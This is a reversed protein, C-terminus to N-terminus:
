RNSDSLGASGRIPLEVIFRAGQGAESEAWIRGGHREVVISWCLWLGLGTGEGVEKTTFFPEFLREGVPESIGPGNDEVELRVWGLRSSTRLTLRPRYEGEGREIEEAMAQAANRVLNLIVQQIQQGDCVVQPLDSGFQRVLDVDRFDYKKKLDYDTVALALTQEVLDNLDYPTLQSSPRRSFSLLDAVIKAAREGATRMGDLYELVGRERLYRELRDPDVGLTQMRERSRSRQPDLNIQLMQAGQMMAGLPNNIEHAVGAALGGVSAMKASQLMIEELQVRRTVDDIRLVVGELENTELPFASVDRYVVGAATPRQEKHRQVVRGERLVEEFLEQYHSFETGAGWLFQGQMQEATKGTLAEAAPNWTLVQGQPTLTILASPMSDTINQLLHQLRLIEEAARKRESVDRANILVAEVGPKDLFSNTITEVYVWHGAAHRLRFEQSLPQGPQRTAQIFSERVAVLDKPHVCEFPDQGVLQEPPYGLIQRASPSVDRVMGDRDLLVIIDASNQVLLRYREESEQLAQEAQKRETIDTAIHIVRDLEGQDDFMPTCSVLYMGRLAEMEMEVTELRNTGLLSELPCCAPPQDTGHFIDCCPQGLLEEKTKGVAELAARNVAVIRHQSDLIMTPHGIAQFIEEWERRARQLAQEARKRETVDIISVIIGKGPDLPDLTNVRVYGDFLSGDQREFVADFEVVQGTKQQEYATRGVREYEEGNAYLLRTEKGLYQGEETFGFMKAMAENAWVICRDRAHAIGVSSALLINSLMEESERLAELAVERQFEARRRGAINVVLGAIVALLVVFALGVGWVLAKHQEYFSHPQNIIRSGPPLNSETLDFRRLQHHDFMYRSPSTELPIDPANEGRLIRLAMGGAMRGEEQGSSLMGGVIGHGLYFEWVSYIPVECEDVIAKLRHEHSFVRGSQDRSFIFLFVITGESLASVQPQLEDVTQHELYRFQVRDRYGAFAAEAKAKLAQGTRTMDTIVAVEQTDPHLQLAVELTAEIDIAEILGTLPPGGQRMAPDYGSVSCFVVPVDPFIAQGPGLVFALAQDDSAIIVDIETDAYKLRYLSALQAFHEDNYFRRTDMFEHMVEVQGAYDAFAAQIGRRINDTWTFGPHYSHLVLVRAGSLDPAVGADDDASQATAGPPLGSWVLCVVLLGCVIGIRISRHWITGAM